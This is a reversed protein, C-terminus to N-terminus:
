GGRGSALETAEGGLGARPPPERGVLEPVSVCDLHGM